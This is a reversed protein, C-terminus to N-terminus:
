RKPKLLNFFTKFESILSKVDSKAEKKYKGITSGIILKDYAERLVKTIPKRSWIDEWDREIYSDILIEASGHQKKKNKVVINKINTCKLTTEIKYKIYDSSEKGSEWKIEIDQTPKDKKAIYSLEKIDYNHKKTWKVLTKYLEKIDFVGEYKLRLGRELYDKFAM